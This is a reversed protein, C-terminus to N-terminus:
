TLLGFQGQGFALSFSVHPVWVDPGEEGEPQMPPTERRSRVGDPACGGARGGAGNPPKVGGVVGGAEPPSSGM